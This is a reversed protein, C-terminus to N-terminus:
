PVDEDHTERKAKTITTTRRLFTNCKYFPYKLENIIFYNFDNTDDYFYKIDNNINNEESLLWIFPKYSKNIKM